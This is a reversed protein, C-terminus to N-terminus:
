APPPARAAQPRHANSSFFVNHISQAPAAADTLRVSLASFPPAIGSYTDTDFSQQDDSKHRWRRDSERKSDKPYAAAGFLPIEAGSQSWGVRPSTKQGAGPAGAMLVVGCFLLLAIVGGLLGCSQPRPAVFHNSSMCFGAASIGKLKPTPPLLTLLLRYSLKPATRQSDNLQVPQRAQPKESLSLQLKDTCM